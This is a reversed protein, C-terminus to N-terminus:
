DRCDPCLTVFRGDANPTKAEEWGEPATPEGSKKGLGCRTCCVGYTTVPRGKTSDWDNILVPM